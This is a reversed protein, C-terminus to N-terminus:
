EDLLFVPEQYFRIHGSRQKETVFNALWRNKELLPMDAKLIDLSANLRLVRNAILFRTIGAPFVRGARAIQLVQEVTYEPFIILGALDPYETQLAAIDRNLTRSVHANTIYTHTLRNMAELHNVRPAPQIFYVKNEVTHLYCLGGGEFMAEWVTQPDAEVMSVEPLDDLLKVLVTPDIQRVAHYWSRLNIHKVDKVVQVIAHPYGLEKLATTRTAGDLVVFQGESEIAIPPNALVGEQELREKLRAVRRPDVHEHPIVKDMPVVRLSLPVEVPGGQLHDIIQRAVTLAANLQADETSAAIHPTAIVKEHRALESDVAPESVFVDLAAGAIQGRNLADLLAAEDVVVGRATNILYATPKMLALEAAGILNHTEPRAPVHLTVFDSERLLDVLDVAEVGLKLNLEPTPRRQNVLVRMGFAKARVAVERGIRGFGIIGLTKGSLGVGKLQSKAWRGQKMSADAQPIRRALALLLALTHEAVARTNADPANVVKIGRNEAAAVDINDLGAGARAIVKLRDARSIIYAPIKTASRVVVADYDGIIDALEERDLGTKIDVEAIQRLLDIGPDAIKDCILVRYQQSSM